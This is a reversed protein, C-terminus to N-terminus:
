HRRVQAASIQLNTNRVSAHVAVGGWHYIQMNSIEVRVPRDSTVPAIVIGKEQSTGASVFGPGQLRFGSIRVSDGTVVFLPRTSRTTDTV